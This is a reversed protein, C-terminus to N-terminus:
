AGMGKNTLATKKECSDDAQTRNIAAQEVVADVYVKGVRNGIGSKKAM